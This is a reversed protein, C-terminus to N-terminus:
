VEVELDRVFTTKLIGKKCAERNWETTGLVAWTWEYEAEPHGPRWLTYMKGICFCIAEVGFQEPTIEDEPGFGHDAGSHWAWGQPADVLEVKYVKGTHSVASWGHLGQAVRIDALKKGQVGDTFDFVQM